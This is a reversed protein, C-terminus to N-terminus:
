DNGIVDVISMGVASMSMLKTNIYTKMIISIGM